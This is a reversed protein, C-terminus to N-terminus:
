EDAADSTYLLCPWQNWSMAFNGTSAFSGPPLVDESTATDQIRLDALWVDGPEDAFRFHLTGTGKVEGPSFEFAHLTWQTNATLAGSNMAGWFFRPPIPKGDVNIQPGGPTEVVRVTVTAPKAAVPEPQTTAQVVSMGACLLLATIITRIKQLEWRVGVRNELTILKDGDNEM